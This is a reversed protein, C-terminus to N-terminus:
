RYDKRIPKCEEAMLALQDNLKAEQETLKEILVASAEKVSVVAIGGVCLPDLEEPVYLVGSLTADYTGTNENLVHGDNDIVVFLDDTRALQRQRAITVGLVEKLRKAFLHKTYNNM